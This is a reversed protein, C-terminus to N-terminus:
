GDRNGRTEIRSADLATTRITSRDQERTSTETEWEIPPPPPRGPPPPPPPTDGSQTAEDPM